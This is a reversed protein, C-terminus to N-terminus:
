QGASQGAIYPFSVDPLTGIYVLARHLMAAVEARSAPRNPALTDLDPYNVVLGTETAAVLQRTAWPPVQTQDTYPALVVAAARSSKLTLGNALAVVVHIRSISNDPLFAGDPYGNLFGMQVSRHISNYAWHAPTVDPYVAEQPQTQDPPFDFLRAVQAAFEARTMPDAPRFSGDPFGALLERQALDSLLPWAWHGADLDTFGPKTQVQPLDPWAQQPPLPQPQVLPPVTLSPARSSDRRSFLAPLRGARGPAAIPTLRTQDDPLRRGTAAALAAGVAIAGLWLPLLQRWRRRPSAKVSAPYRRKPPRSLPPM